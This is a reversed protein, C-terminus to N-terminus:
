GNDPEKNRNLAAQWGRWAGETLLDAYDGSDRNIRTSYGRPGFEAEFEERMLRDTM